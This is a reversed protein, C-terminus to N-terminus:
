QHLDSSLTYDDNSMPTGTVEIVGDDFYVRLYHRVGQLSTYGIVYEGMLEPLDAREADDLFDTIYGTFQPFENEPDSELMAGYHKGIKYVLKSYSM